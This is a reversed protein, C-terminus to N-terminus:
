PVPQISEEIRKREEDTFEPFLEWFFRFKESQVDDWPFIVAKQSNQFMLAFVKYAAVARLFEGHVVADLLIDFVTDGKRVTFSVFNVRTVLGVRIDFERDEDFGQPCNIPLFLTPAILGPEYRCVKWDSPRVPFVQM